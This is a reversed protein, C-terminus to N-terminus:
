IGGNARMASIFMILLLEDDRYAPYLLRQGMLESIANVYETESVQQYLKSTPKHAEVKSATPCVKCECQHTRGMVRNRVTGGISHGICGGCLFYDTGDQAVRFESQNQCTSM